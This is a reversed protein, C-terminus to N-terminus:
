ARLPCRRRRPDAAPSRGADRGRRYASVGAKLAAQITANARDETFLVIPRPNHASVASVHELVDRTPSETDIIIVDPLFEAVREALALGLTSVVVVDYGAAALGDRLVSVDDDSDDVLMVRLMRRAEEDRWDRIAQLSRALSARSSTAPEGRDPFHRAILVRRSPAPFSPALTRYSTDPRPLSSEAGFHRALPCIRRERRPSAAFRAETLSYRKGEGAQLAGKRSFTPPTCYFVSNTADVRRVIV